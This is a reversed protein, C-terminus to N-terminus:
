EKTEEIVSEDVGAGFAQALDALQQQKWWIYVSEFGGAYESRCRNVLAALKDQPGDMLLKHNVEEVLIAFARLETRELLSGYSHCSDKSDAATEYFFAAGFDSLRVQSKDGQKVLINHGYFDGHCIGVKHLCQLAHLLTSVMMEGQETTWMDGEEEEEQDNKNYVDRSCTEFSPPDALAQFQDLFEMVLSGSQQTQGLVQILAPSKLTSAACAVRREESALGDSTMAKGATKVAVPRSKYLLKRTIGGAGQGLIDGETEEEDIESLVPLNRESISWLKNKEAVRELFPNDSLAVWALRPLRLLTMPPEALRNSALRILELNTCNQISEPLEQIQNGSLMCKQLRTCRGITDPIVSINNDTLILWRLQPQLADPHISEMENSKFAVMQLKPCAGLVAPMERFNNNSLFLISLNPFAKEFGKPLSNLGCGTLNLITIDEWSGVDLKSLEVLRNIEAENTEQENSAYSSSM